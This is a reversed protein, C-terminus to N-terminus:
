LQMNITGGLQAMTGSDALPVISGPYLQCLLIACYSRSTGSLPVQQFGVIM